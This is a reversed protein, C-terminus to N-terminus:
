DCAGTATPATVRDDEPKARSERVDSGSSLLIIGEVIYPPLMYKSLVM